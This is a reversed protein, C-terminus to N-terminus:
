LASGVIKGSAGSIAAGSQTTATLIGGDGQQLFEEGRFSSLPVTALTMTKGSAFTGQVEGNQGISVGQLTGQDTPLSAANFQLLQPTGTTPNGTAPDVPNGM